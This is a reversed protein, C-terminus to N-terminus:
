GGENQFILLLAFVSYYYLLICVLSSPFNTRRMEKLLLHFPRRLAFIFCAGTDKEWRRGRRRKGAAAIHKRWFYMLGHFLTSSFFLERQRPLFGTSSFLLRLNGGCPSPCISLMLCLPSNRIRASPKESGGKQFSSIERKGFIRVQGPIKGISRNEERSEQSNQSSKAEKQLKVARRFRGAVAKSDQGRKLEFIAIDGSRKRRLVSSGPTKYLMSHTKNRKIIACKMFCKRKMPM